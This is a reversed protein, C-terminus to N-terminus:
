KVNLSKLLARAAVNKPDAALARAAENQARRRLGALKYLEALMMRFTANNPELALAAHLESEATRRTNSRLTLASGYYARYRAVRPALHAAEALFRIADDIRRHKLAEMGYSFSTEATEKNQRATAKSNSGAAGAKALLQRDYNTRRSPDNLTEYAQAIRAFASEIENRLESPGQHFRDPHFNRALLHYCDKIEQATAARSIDLVEYYDNANGLRELFVDTETKSSTAASTEKQPQARTRPASTKRAADGTLAEPWEDRILAGALSLGYVSRLSEEPSLGNAGLDASNIGTEEVTARSLMFEEASTLNLTHGARAVSYSANPGDFRSKVFALPLHRACELLLQNVDVKMRLEEPVRVRPDFMWSGNPWLLATRLADQVMRGRINQLDERTLAGSKVIDAALEDEAATEPITALQAEAIGARKLAERLRHARLNSAAFVTEGGLFYVVVKAPGRSVRLAGSLGAHSIERILECLPHEQLQGEMSSSIGTPGKM